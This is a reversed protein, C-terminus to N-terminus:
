NPDIYVIKLTEGKHIVVFIPDIYIIKLTEGKYIVAVM